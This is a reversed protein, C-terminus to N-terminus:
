CTDNGDNMEESSNKFFFLLDLQYMKKLPIYLYSM